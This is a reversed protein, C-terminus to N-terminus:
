RSGRLSVNIVSHFPSTQDHSDTISTVIINVLYQILILNLIAIAYM